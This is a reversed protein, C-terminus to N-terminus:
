QLIGPSIRVWGMSTQLDSSIWCPSPAKVLSFIIDQPFLVNLILTVEIKRLSSVYLQRFFPWLRKNWILNTCTIGRTCATEPLCIINTFACTFACAFCRTFTTNKNKECNWPTMQFEVPPHPCTIGRTCTAMKEHLIGGGVGVWWKQSDFVCHSTM